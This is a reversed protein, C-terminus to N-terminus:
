MISGGDVAGGEWQVGRQQIGLCRWSAAGAARGTSAASWTWSGLYLIIYHHYYNYYCTIFLHLYINIYYIYVYYIYIGGGKRDVSCEMDMLGRLHTYTNYVLMFTYIHVYIYIYIYLSLSFM